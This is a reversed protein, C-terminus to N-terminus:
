REEVPPGYKKILELQVPAGPKSEVYTRRYGAKRATFMHRSESDLAPCKATGAANTRDKFVVQDKLRVDVLASEVPQQNAKLVVKILTDVAEGGAAGLEPSSFCTFCLMGALFRRSFPM